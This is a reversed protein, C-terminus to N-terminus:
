GDTKVEEEKLEEQVPSAVEEEKVPSKKPARKKPAPKELKLREIELECDTIYNAQTKNQLKFVDISANLKEIEADKATDVSELAKNSESLAERTLAVENKLEELALDREEIAANDTQEISAIGLRNVAHRMKWVDHGGREIVDYLNNVKKTLDKFRAAFVPHAEEFYAIEELIVDLDDENFKSRAM